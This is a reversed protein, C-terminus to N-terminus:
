EEEEAPVPLAPLDWGAMRALLWAAISLPIVIAFACRLQEMWGGYDLAGAAPWSVPILLLLPALLVLGLRGIVRRRYLWIAGAELLIGIGAAIGISMLDQETFM